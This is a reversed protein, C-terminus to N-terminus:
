THTFYCTEETGLSATPNMEPEQIASIFVSEGNELRRKINEFDLEEVEMVEVDWDESGLFFLRFGLKKNENVTVKDLMEAEGHGNFLFKNWLNNGEKGECRM